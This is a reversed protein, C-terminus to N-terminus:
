IAEAADEIMQVGGNEVREVRGTRRFTRDARYDEGNRGGVFRAADVMVVADPFAARAAIAMESEFGSAAIPTRLAGLAAAFRELDDSLLRREYILLVARIVKPDATPEFGM